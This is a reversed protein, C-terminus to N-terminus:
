RQIRKNIRVNCHGNGNRVTIPTAAGVPYDAASAPTDPVLRPPYWRRATACYAPIYAAAANLLDRIVASPTTRVSRCATEFAQWEDPDTRLQVRRDLKEGVRIIYACYAPKTLVTNSKEQVCM